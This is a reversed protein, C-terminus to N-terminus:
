DNLYGRNWNVKGCPKQETCRKFLICKPGAEDFLVPIESRFKKLLVNALDRIEWQAKDCCRENFFHKWSKVNMSIVIKTEMCNPFVYRADENPIGLELMKTYISNMEALYTEYMELAEPNDQITPPTIYVPIKKVYRQSMQSYSAIRHRVLQHTLVRSVGSVHITILMHEIPSEHRSHEKVFELMKQDDPIKIDNINDGSYCRRYAIYLKKLWSSDKFDDLIEIDLM